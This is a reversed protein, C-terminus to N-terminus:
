EMFLSIQQFLEELNIDQFAAGLEQFSGYSRVEFGQLSVSSPRSAEILVKMMKEKCKKGSSDVDIKVTKLLRCFEKVQLRDGQLILLISRGLFLMGSLQLQHAWRELLKIYRRRDRIHDLLLVVTRDPDRAAEADRGACTDMRQVHEQVGEVLRHLMPEAPLAAAQDLLKQRIHLSQTKSLRTSTVSIGPPCSPYAPPLHFSLSIDPGGEGGVTQKIHVVLGDQGSRHVLQFEEEGCYISSLVSVEELAAESM